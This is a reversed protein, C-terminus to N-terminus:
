IMFLCVEWVLVVPIERMRLVPVPVPIMEEVELLEEEPLELM